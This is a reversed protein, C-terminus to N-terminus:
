DDLLGRVKLERQITEQNDPQTETDTYYNMLEASDVHIQKRLNTITLINSPTIGKGVDEYGNIM